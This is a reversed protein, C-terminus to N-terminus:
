VHLMYISNQWPEIEEQDQFALVRPRALSSANQAACAAAAADAISLDPEQDAGSSGAVPQSAVHRTEVPQTRRWRM